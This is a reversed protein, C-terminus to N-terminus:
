RVAAWPGTGEMVQSSLIGPVIGLTPVQFGLPLYPQMAEFGVALGNRTKQKRPAMPVHQPLAAPGAPCESPSPTLADQLEEQDCPHIFDFISHGILELQPSPCLWATSPPCASWPGLGGGAEGWWRRQGLEHVQAVGSIEGVV